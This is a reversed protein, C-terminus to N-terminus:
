EALCAMSGSIHLWLWYGLQAAAYGMGAADTALAPGALPEEM